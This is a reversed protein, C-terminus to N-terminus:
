RGCHEEEDPFGLAASQGTHYASQFADLTMTGRSDGMVRLVATALGQIFGFELEVAAEFAPGDIVRELHQFIPMYDRLVPHQAACPGFHAGSTDIRWV